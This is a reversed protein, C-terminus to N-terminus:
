HEGTTREAFKIVTVSTWDRRAALYPNYTEPSERKSSEEKSTPSKVGFIALSM